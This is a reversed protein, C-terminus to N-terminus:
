RLEAVFAFTEKKDSKKKKEQYVKQKPCEIKGIGRKKVMIVNM